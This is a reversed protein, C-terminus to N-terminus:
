SLGRIPHKGPLHHGTGSHRWLKYAVFGELDHYSVGLEAVNMALADAKRLKTLYQHTTSCEYHFIYGLDRSAEGKDEIGDVALDGPCGL